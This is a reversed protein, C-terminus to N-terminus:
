SYIYIYIFLQDCHVCSFIIKSVVFPIRYNMLPNIAVVGLTCFNGRKKINRNCMLKALLVFIIEYMCLNM